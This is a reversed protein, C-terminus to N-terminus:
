LSKLIDAYGSIPSQMQEDEHEEGRRMRKRSGRRREIVRWERGLEAVVYKWGYEEDIKRYLL